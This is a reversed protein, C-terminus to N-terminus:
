FNNLIKIVRDQDTQKLGPYIPLSVIESSIKETLKLKNKIKFIKQKHVHLKYHIGCFINGAELIRLLKTRNKVLSANQGDVFQNKESQWEERNRNFSRKM